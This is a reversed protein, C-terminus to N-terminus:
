SGGSVAASYVREMFTPAGRYGIFSRNMVVEETNPTGVRVLLGGLEAAVDMEWTSGLILPVTGAFDANKIEHEIIYGDEIFDVEASVGETINEYLRRIGDRFREPPNDTIIQKVPIVGMQDALFKTLALNTSADSAIAFRSPLGFWFESFFETFHELFYYYLKAEKKIFEESRKPNIGAFEVVQRIFETTAEEGVPVIPVHLYPQNYKAKLHEATDIGVWPSVVLNFQAKPIDKWEAAGRSEPGFLANVELGAGELVRKLEIFDGRWNTNFYPVEFFLNLLGKRKRGKYDGVFQDIIEKMVIEHGTINNGKFGAADAFVVPKGARQYGRVVSGVDDGVLEGSCGTVVVFIDGKMIRLASKILADLKKTGGFVIENEGVNASPMAGAGAGNTGQYGNEGCMMFFQKDACGPGCNAIPVGGPIAVVSYVAGIACGYRPHVITNTRRFRNADTLIDPM